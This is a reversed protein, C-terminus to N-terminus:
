KSSKKKYGKQPRNQGFSKRNLREKKKKNEAVKDIAKWGDDIRDIDHHKAFDACIQEYKLKQSEAEEAYPARAKEDMAKWEKNSIKTREGLSMKPNERGLDALKQSNYIM